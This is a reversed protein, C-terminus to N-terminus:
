VLGAGGVGALAFRLRAAIGEARQDLREAAEGSAVEILAGQGLAARVVREADDAHEVLFRTSVLLEEVSREGLARLTADFGMTGREDAGWEEAVTEIRRLAQARRLTSAQQAAEEHIAAASARVPLASSVAVRTAFSTPLARAAMAAAKPAGGIVIWGDDGAERVLREAAARVMRALEEDLVRRAADVGTQGRAGPGHAHHPASGPHPAGARTEAQVPITDLHVLRGREYRYLRGQRTSLIVVVVPRHEKLARIYPAIRPGEMWTVRTPTPAPLWAAHRVGGATIFAVWGPAPPVERLSELRNELLTVCRELDAREAHSADALSARLDRLANALVLRWGEQHGPDGSAGDIYVSLVPEDALEQLLARLQQQSLM